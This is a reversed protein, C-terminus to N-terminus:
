IVAYTYRESETATLDRQFAHCKDELTEPMAPSTAKRELLGGEPGLCSTETSVSNAAPGAITVSDAWGTAFRRAGGLNV